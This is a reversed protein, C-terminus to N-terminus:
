SHTSTLPAHATDLALPVAGPTRDRRGAPFLRRPCQFERLDLHIRLQGVGQEGPRLALRQLEIKLLGSAVRGCGDQAADALVPGSRAASSAVDVRRRLRRGRAAGM